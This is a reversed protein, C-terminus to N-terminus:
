KKSFPPFRNVFCCLIQFRKKSIQKQLLFFLKMISIKMYTSKQVFFFHINLVFFHINFTYKGFFLLSKETFVVIWIWLSKSFNPKSSINPLLATISSRSIFPEPAEFSRELKTCVSMISGTDPWPFPFYLNLFYNLLNLENFLFAKIPLFKWHSSSFWFFFMYLRMKSLQNTLFTGCPFTSNHPPSYKKHLLFFIRERNDDPKM